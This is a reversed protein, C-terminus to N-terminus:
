LASIYQINISLLDFTTTLFCVAFANFNLIWNTMVRLKVHCPICRLLNVYDMYSSM